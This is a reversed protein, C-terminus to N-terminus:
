LYAIMFNCQLMEMVGAGVAPHINCSSFLKYPQETLSQVVFVDLEQLLSSSDPSTLYERTKLQQIILSAFFKSFFSQLFLIYFM